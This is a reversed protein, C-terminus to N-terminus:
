TNISLYLHLSSFVRFISTSPVLLYLSLTLRTHALGDRGSPAGPPRPVGRRASPPAGGGAAAAAAGM